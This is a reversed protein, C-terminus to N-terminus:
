NLIINIVANVDGINVESDNNVDGKIVPAVGFISVKIIQQIASMMDIDINASLATGTFRSTLDLPVDGLYQGIWESEAFEPNNGPTIVISNNFKITTYGYQDVGEVGTVTINGVPLTNGDSVLCFNKLNLEYLGNNNTVDVEVGDQESTAGNIDVMLHCTYTTASLAMACCAAAMFAFFKKM